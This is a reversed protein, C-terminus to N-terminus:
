SLSQSLVKLSLELSFIVLVYLIRIIYAVVPIIFSDSAQVKPKYWVEIIALKLDIRYDKEVESNKNSPSLDQHWDAIPLLTRSCRILFYTHPAALFLIYLGSTTPSYMSQLGKWAPNQSQFLLFNYVESIIGTNSLSALAGGRVPCLHLLLYCTAHMEPNM